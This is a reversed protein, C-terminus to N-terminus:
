EVWGLVVRVRKFFRQFCQQSWWSSGIVQLWQILTLPGYKLFGSGQMGQGKNIPFSLSIKVASYTCGTAWHCMMLWLYPDYNCWTCHQPKDLFLIRPGSPGNFNLCSHPAGQGLDDFIDIFLVIRIRSTNFHTECVAKWSVPRCLFM